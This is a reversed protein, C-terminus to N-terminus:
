ALDGHATTCTIAQDRAAGDDGYNVYRASGTALGSTQISSFSYRTGGGDNSAIVFSYNAAGFASTFNVTYDSTGNDTISAVNQSDRLAITGIGNLNSWAKSSGNVVYSTGVTDTGDTINSVNLTSM